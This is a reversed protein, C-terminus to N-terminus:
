CSYIQSDSVHQYSSNVASMGDPEYTNCKYALTPTSFHKSEVLKTNYIWLNAVPPQLIM